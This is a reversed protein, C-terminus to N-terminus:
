GLSLKAIRAGDLTFIQGTMFSAQDSTLWVILEAVEEPTGTRRLPHIFDIKTKFQDAEPQSNIFDM